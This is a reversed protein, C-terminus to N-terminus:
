KCGLEHTIRVLHVDAAGSARVFSWRFRAREGRTIRHGCDDCDRGHEMKVTLAGEKARLTRWAAALEERGEIGVVIV